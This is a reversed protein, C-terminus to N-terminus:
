VRFALKGKIWRDRQSVKGIKRDKKVWIANPIQCVTTHGSTDEETQPAFLPPTGFHRLPKTGSDHCTIPYQSQRLLNCTLGYGIVQAALSLGRGAKATSGRNAGCAGCVSPSVGSGSSRITLPNRKEACTYGAKLCILSEPKVGCVLTNVGSKKTFIPHCRFPM